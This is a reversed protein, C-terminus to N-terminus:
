RFATLKESSEISSRTSNLADEVAMYLQSLMVSQGFLTLFFAAIPMVDMVKQEEFM